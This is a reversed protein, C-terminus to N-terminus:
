MQRFFNNQNTYWQGGGAVYPDSDIVGMGGFGPAAVLVPRDLANGVLQTFYYMIIPSSILYRGAPFYVLAPSITSSGCNNGCRGGSSIATNICATDDAIGDGACGFDMVNRYVKYDAPNQHYAVNGHAINAIWM